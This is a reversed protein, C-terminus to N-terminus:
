WPRNAARAVAGLCTLCIAAVGALSLSYDLVPLLAALVTPLLFGSYALSYYVGTIGALADPQAIAQALVLGAVVGIGDALGRLIAVALASPPHLPRGRHPRRPPRTRRHGPRPHTRRRRLHRLGPRARHRRRLRPDPGGDTRGRRRPGHRPEHTRSRRRDGTRRHGPQDAARPEA